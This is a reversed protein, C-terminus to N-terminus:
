LSPIDITACSHVIGDGPLGPITKRNLPIGYLPVDAVVLRKLVASVGSPGPKLVYHYAISTMNSHLPWPQHYQPQPHRFPM